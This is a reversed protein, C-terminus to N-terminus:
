GRSLKVLQVSEFGDQTVVDSFPFSFNGNLSYKKYGRQGWKASGLTNIMQFKESFNM